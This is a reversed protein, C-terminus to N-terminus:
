PTASSGVGHGDRFDVRAGASGVGTGDRCGVAGGASGIRWTSREAEGGGSSVAGMRAFLKGASNTGASDTGSVSDSSSLLIFGPTNFRMRLVHRWLRPFESAAGPTMWSNFSWFTSSLTGVGGIDLAGVALTGSPAGM